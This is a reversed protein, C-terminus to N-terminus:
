LIPQVFNNRPLGHELDSSITAFTLASNKKELVFAISLNRALFCKLHNVETM